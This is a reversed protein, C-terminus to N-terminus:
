HDTVNLKKEYTYHEYTYLSVHHISLNLMLQTIAGLHKGEPDVRKNSSTVSRWPEEWGFLSYPQPAVALRNKNSLSIPLSLSSDPDGRQGPLAKKKKKKLYSCKFRLSKRPLKREKGQEKLQILM